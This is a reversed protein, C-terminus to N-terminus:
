IDNTQQTMSREVETMGQSRTKRAPIVIKQLLSIRNPRRDPEWRYGDLRFSDPLLNEPYYTGELDQFVGIRDAAGGQFSFVIRDASMRVAGDPREEEDTRFHIAEANPAITMTKLSDRDFVAILHRGRLQQVRQIVTDLQAVFTQQRVWLTDMKGARQQVRITDGSAQSQEFWVIPNQFLRAQEITEDGDFNVRDYVVSDALAAFDQQWIRVSDVAILRELSDQRSAELIRARILLSDVDVGISDARLQVLLPNGEIRSYAIKNDNYARQGFLLIRTTTDAEATADSEGLREIMVNNRAISIETERYYTVSDAKLHTRNEDLQVDGYFDARKEESWYEGANSTLVSTSDILRVSEEFVAHKEETYYLGSPAFLVVDGDSLRVNGRARGTKFREHYRVTDAALSDGEEVIQVHGFFYIEERDLYRLALDAHLETDDQRLRVNGSLRQIREGNVIEGSGTDANEIIVERVKTPDPPTTQQAWLLSPSLLHLNVLLCVYWITQRICCVDPRLFAHKMM